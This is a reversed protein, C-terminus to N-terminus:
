SSAKPETQNSRTEIKKLLKKPDKNSSLTKILDLHLPLLDKLAYHKVITDRANARLKQCLAPDKLLMLATDALKKFDFFNCLMGNQGNQIVERVPETDSGIICCGSAMAEMLSWSLVFPVTLYIHLSSAKLVELYTPYPVKGLFHLRSHDLDLGEMAMAKHSSGKPAAKGYGNSEGGIVVVQLTPHHKQMEVVARIFTPFGRYPEINRTVYTILPTSSPIVVRNPLKLETRPSPKILETDIGEHLISFKSLFEKPHQIAQFHTPTIAHNCAELNMLHLSNRIRIQAVEDDNSDGQNLFNSDAGFAHYYFEMYYLFPIKPYFDRLFLTDGWGPHACLVDPEFGKLRLQKCVRWVEQAQYIAREMSLLYRHTEPQPQRTVKYEVKTVGQITVHTPKTLFVIENKPNQALARVIHKYQGPMNPHLFLVKM